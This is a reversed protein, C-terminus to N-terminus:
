AEGPSQVFILKQDAWRRGGAPAPGRSASVSITRFLWGHASPVCPGARPPHRGQGRPTAAGGLPRLAPPLPCLRCIRLVTWTIKQLFLLNNHFVFKFLRNDYNHKDYLEAWHKLADSIKEFSEYNKLPLLQNKPVFKLHFCEWELKSSICNM